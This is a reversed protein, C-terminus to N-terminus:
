SKDYLVGIKDAIGTVIVGFGVSQILTPLQNQAQLLVGMNESLSLTPDIKDIFAYLKELLVQNLKAIESPLKDLWEALLAEWAELDEWEM